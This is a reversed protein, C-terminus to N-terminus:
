TWQWCLSDRVNFRYDVALSFFDLIRLHLITFKSVLLEM